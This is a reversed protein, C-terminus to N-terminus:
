RSSLCFSLLVPLAQIPNIDKGLAPAPAQLRSAIVADEWVIQLDDEKLRPGPGQFNLTAALSRALRRVVQRDPTTSPSLALC